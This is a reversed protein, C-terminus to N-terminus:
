SGSAPQDGRPGPWVVTRWSDHLAVTLPADAGLARESDALARRFHSRASQVEGAAHLALALRHRTQITQAHDDGLVRNRSVLIQRLLSAARPFDGSAHHILALKERRDLTDPHEDGLMRRSGAVVRAALRRAQPHRGARSFADALESRVQWTAPADEGFMEVADTHVRTLLGLAERLRSAALYTRALRRCAELTAPHRSGSHREHYDMLQVRHHIAAELEGNDEHTGALLARASLTEPDDDGQIRAHAILAEVFHATAADLQGSRRYATGLDNHTRAVDPHDRGLAQEQTECRRRLVVIADDWRSAAMYSNVLGTQARWVEPHYPGLQAESEACIQEWQAVAEATLSSAQYCFALDRRVQLVTTGHTQSLWTKSSLLQRYRVIAQDTQDTLQFADALGRVASLTGPDDDGYSNSLRWAAEEFERIAAQAAGSDLHLEALRLQIGLLNRDDPSLRSRMGALSDELVQVAENLRGASVYADILRHTVLVAAHHAIGHRQTRRMRADDFAAIAAAARGEDLHLRALNELSELSDDHLPGLIEQRERLVREYLVQAASLHRAQEFTRAAEYLASLLAAPYTGSSLNPVALGAAETLAAAVSSVVERDFTEVCALALNRVTAAGAPDHKLLATLTSVAEAREEGRRSTLSTILGPLLEKVPPTYTQNGLDNLAAHLSDPAPRGSTSPQSVPIFPGHPSVWTGTADQRLTTPFLDNDRVPKSGVYLLGAGGTGRQRVAREVDHYWHPSGDLIVLVFADLPVKRVAAAVAAERQGPTVHSIDIETLHPLWKISSTGSGAGNIYIMRLREPQFTYGIMAILSAAARVAEDGGIIQVGSRINVLLPSREREVKRLRWGVPVEAVFGADDTVHGALESILPPEAVAPLLIRAAAAQGSLSDVLTQAVTVAPTRSALIEDWGQGASPVRHSASAVLYPESVLSGRVMRVAWCGADSELQLLTSYPLSRVPASSPRRAVIASCRRWGVVMTLAEALAPADIHLSDFNDDTAVVITLWPADKPQRARRRIEDLLLRGLANLEAKDMRHLRVSGGVHPLSEVGDFAPQKCLDVLLLNLQTSPVRAALSLVATRLLERRARASNGHVLINGAGHQLHLVRRAPSIAIPALGAPQWDGEEAEIAFLDSLSPQSTVIESGTDITEERVPPPVLETISQLIAAAMPATRQTSSTHASLARCIRLVDTGPLLALEGLRNLTSRKDPGSDLTALAEDITQTITGASATDQLRRRMAVFWERGLDTSRGAEAEAEALWANAAPADALALATLMQAHELEPQAHWAPSRDTYQELLIAVRTLRATGYRAVLGELLDVRLEPPVEYLGDGLERVLPSLLFEAEAEYPLGPPPDLFFNVRLMHVFGPDLAVPVAAHCALELSGPPLTRRAEALVAATSSSHRWPRM